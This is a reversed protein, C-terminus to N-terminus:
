DGTPVYFIRAVPESGLVSRLEMEFKIAAPFVKSNADVEELWFYKKAERDWVLYTAKFAAIGGFLRTKTGTKERALDHVNFAERTLTQQAADYKYVAKGIARPGGLAAPAEILTPLAFKESDGWFPLDKMRFSQELDREVKQFFLSRDENPDPTGITQWLRLASSFNSFIAFAVIPLLVSVMLVEM